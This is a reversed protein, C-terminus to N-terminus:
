NDEDVDSHEDDDEKIMPQSIRENILTSSFVLEMLNKSEQLHKKKSLPPPYMPDIAIKITNEILHTILRALLPCCTELCPNTNVEILWPKMDSDIMFDLGFLEFSYFLKNPNLHQYTAKVIDISLKKLQDLIIQFNYNHQDNLYKQFENYSIKNGTEFKGYNQNKKQVADNTLHTFKDEVDDLSFEKCSTRIYGEQYWYAKFTNNVCTMLMYCRIDFKRKNYLLPKELYKQIIFTKKSNNLHLNQQSIIQKVKTISNAVQIGNGRNSSEGPKIIWVNINNTKAFEEFELFAPDNLGTKVHYTLPIFQFPDENISLYYNKMNYFLAKKNCVQFNCELHNHVRLISSQNFLQFESEEINYKIKDNILKKQQKTFQVNELQFQKVSDYEQQKRLQTWYLNLDENPQDILIWWPRLKLSQRILTGNNGKTIFAKYFTREPPVVNINNTFAIMIPLEIIEQNEKNIENKNNITKKVQFQKQPILRLEKKCKEQSNSDPLTELLNKKIILKTESSKRNHIEIRPPYSLVTPLLQPTCQSCIKMQQQDQQQKNMLDFFQQFGKMRLSNLKPHYQKVSQLQTSDACKTNGKIFLFEIGHNQM